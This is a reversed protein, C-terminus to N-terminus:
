RKAKFRRFMELDFQRIKDTCRNNKTLKSFFLKALPTNMNKTHVGRRKTIIFYEVFSKTQACTLEIDSNLVQEMLQLQFDDM